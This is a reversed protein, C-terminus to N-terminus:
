TEHECVKAEYISSVQSLTSIQANSSDLLNETNLKQKLLTHVYEREEQLMEKLSRKKRIMEEIKNMARQLNAETIRLKEAMAQNSSQTHHLEAQLQSDRELFKTTTDEVEQACAQRETILERLARHLLAYPVHEEELTSKIAKYSTPPPLNLEDMVSFLGHSIFDRITATDGLKTAEMADMISALESLGRGVPQPTLLRTTGQTDDQNRLTGFKSPSLPQSQSTSLPHPLALTPYKPTINPSTGAM